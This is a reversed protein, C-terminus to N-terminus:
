RTRTAHEDADGVAILTGNRGNRAIESPEPEVHDAGSPRGLREGRRTDVATTCVFHTLPMGVDGVHNCIALDLKHDIRRVAMGGATITGMQSKGGYAMTDGICGGYGSSLRKCCGHFDDMVFAEANYSQLIQRSSFSCAPCLSGNPDSGVSEYHTVLVLGWHSVSGVLEDWIRSPCLITEASVPM